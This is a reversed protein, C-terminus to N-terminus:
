KSNSIEKCLDVVKLVREDPTDSEIDAIVLDCPGYEEAIKRVDSEVKDWENNNFDMPTYMYARRADPILERVRKLDSDSGMDVYGLTDVKSYADIYADANWACNHIAVAGFEEGFRVDYDLFYQAYQEPSVMNVLCNSVTYFDIDVGTQKQRAYVRKCGESMVYYVADFLKKCREPSDFLDLFLKEGRLRHATNLIGQWNIHGYVEGESKEIWDIQKMLDQFTPNNDLDPLELNDIEEDSFYKHECTPWNDAAYIPPVGFVMAVFNGGYVGTLLDLPKDPEDIQGISTGPFRKKLEGRMQILTERRYEPDVHWKEGFDIGLPERFWKPTFGIEPRIYPEDGRASRRRAPAAPAIYSIQQLRSVM